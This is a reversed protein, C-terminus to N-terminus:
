STGKSGSEGEVFITVHALRKKIPFARGRARPHWRKLMGAESAYAEAIKLSEEKLKYNHSANAVASKLVNEVVRAGAHSMFSLMALAEHAPKAKILELIRRVKRASIRQWKAEAKARMKFWRPQGKPLRAM